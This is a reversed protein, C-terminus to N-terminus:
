KKYIFVKLKINNKVAYIIKRINTINTFLTELQM